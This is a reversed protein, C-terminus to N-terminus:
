NVRFFIKFEILCTGKVLFVVDIMHAAKYWGFMKFSYFNTCLFLLLSHLPWNWWGEPAFRLHALLWEKTGATMIRHEITEGVLNRGVEGDHGVLFHAWSRGQVGQATHWYNLMFRSAAKTGAYRQHFQSWYDVIKHCAFRGISLTSYSFSFQFDPLFYRTSINLSIAM